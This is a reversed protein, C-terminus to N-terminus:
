VTCILVVTTDNASVHEVKNFSKEALRGFSCVEWLFVCYNGGCATKRIRRSLCQVYVEWPEFAEKLAGFCLDLDM